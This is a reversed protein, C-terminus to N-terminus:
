GDAPTSKGSHYLVNWCVGDSAGNLYNNPIDKLFGEFDHAKCHYCRNWPYLIAYFPHQM